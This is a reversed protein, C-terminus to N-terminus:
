KNTKVIFDWSKEFKPLKISIIFKLEELRVEKESRGSSFQAIYNNETDINFIPLEMYSEESPKKYKITLINDLINDEFIKIVKKNSDLLRFKVMIEDRDNFNKISSEIIKFQVENITNKQSNWSKIAQITKEIQKEGAPGYSPKFIGEIFSISDSGSYMIDYDYARFFGNGIFWCDTDKKCDIGFNCKYPQSLGKNEMANNFVLVCNEADQTTITQASLLCNKLSLYDSYCVSNTNIQGSCWKPCGEIDWNPPLNFNNNYNKKYFDLAVEQGYGESLGGFSHGFEHLFVHLDVLKINKIGITEFGVKETSKLYNHAVGGINLPQLAIIQYTDKRVELCKNKINQKAEELSNVNDNFYFFNFYNGYIDFPKISYFSFKENKDFFNLLSNKLNKEEKPLVSSVFIVNINNKINGKYILLQCEGLNNKDTPTEITEVRASSPKRDKCLEQAEELNNGVCINIFGTKSQMQSMVLGFRGKQKAKLSLTLTKSETAPQNNISLWGKELIKSQGGEEVMFKIIEYDLQPTIKERQWGESISVIEFNDEFNLINGDFPLEHQSYIKDYLSNVIVNERLYDERASITLTIDFTDGVLLLKDASDFNQNIPPSTKGGQNILTVYGVILIALLLVIGIFYKKFILNM